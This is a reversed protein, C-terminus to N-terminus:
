IESVFRWDLLKCFICICKRRRSRLKTSGYNEVNTNIGQITVNSNGYVTTFDSADGDGDKDYGRGGGYVLGTVTVGLDSSSGIVVTTDGSVYGLNGGGFVIEFTGSNITVSTSGVYGENSGGYVNTIECSTINLSTAGVVNGSNGGAYLTGFDTNAITVSTGGAVTGNTEAEM